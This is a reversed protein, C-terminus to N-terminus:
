ESVSAACCANVETLASRPLLGGGIAHPPVSSIARAVRKAEVESPFTPILRSPRRSTLWRRADRAATMNSTATSCTIAYQAVKAEILVGEIAFGRSEFPHEDRGWRRRFGSARIRSVEGHMRPYTRRRRFRDGSREGRRIGNRGIVRGVLRRRVPVGFQFEHGLTGGSAVSGFLRSVEPKRAAGWRRLCRRKIPVRHVRMSDLDGGLTPQNNVQAIFADHHEHRKGEGEAADAFFLCISM